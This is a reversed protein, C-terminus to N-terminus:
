LKQGSQKAPVLNYGIVIEYCGLISLLMLRRCRSGRSPLLPGFCPKTSGKTVLKTRRLEGLRGLFGEWLPADGSRSTPPHRIFNAKRLCPSDRADTSMNGEGVSDKIQQPLGASRIQLVVMCVRWQTGHKLFVTQGEEQEEEYGTCEHWTTSLNDESSPSRLGVKDTLMWLIILTLTPNLLGEASPWKVM